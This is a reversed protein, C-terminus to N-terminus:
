AKDGKRLGAHRQVGVGNKGEERSEKPPVRRRNGGCATKIEIDRKPVLQEPRRKRGLDVRPEEEVM